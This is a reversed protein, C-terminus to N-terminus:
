VLDRSTRLASPSLAPPQEAQPSQQLSASLAAAARALPTVPPTSLSIPKPDPLVARRHGLQIPVRMVEDARNEQLRFSAVPLQPAAIQEEMQQVAPKPSIGSFNPWLRPSFETQTFSHSVSIDLPLSSTTRVSEEHRGGNATNLHPSHMFLPPSDVLGPRWHVRQHFQLVQEQKKKLFRRKRSHPVSLEMSKMSRDRRSLLM